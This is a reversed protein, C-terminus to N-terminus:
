YYKGRRETKKQILGVQAFCLFLRPDQFDLQLCYTNIYGYVTSEAIIKMGKSKNYCHRLLLAHHKQMPQVNKMCDNFTFSM